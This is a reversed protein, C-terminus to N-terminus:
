GPFEIYSPPVHDTLWVGNESVYFVHGDRHMRGADVRLVVPMGRRGGVNTATAQEATLHVHHRRMKSLGTKRISAVAQHTTGHLLTEPPAMPAYGLDVSVSHGQNARIRCGDPSFAFRKKESTAVIEELEARTLRRGFKHAQALLESVEVWGQADLTIGIAQPQHRLVLTLFKSTRVRDKSDVSYRRHMTEM